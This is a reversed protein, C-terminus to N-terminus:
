QSTNVHLDHEIGARQFISRLAKSGISVGGRHSFDMAYHNAFQKHGDLGEGFTTNNTDIGAFAAEVPVLLLFIRLLLGAKYSDSCRVVPTGRGGHMSRNKSYTAVLKVVSGVLFGHRQAQPTNSLQYIELETIRFAGGSTVQLLV